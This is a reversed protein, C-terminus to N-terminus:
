ILWTTFDRNKDMDIMANYFDDQNCIVINDADSQRKGEYQRAQYSFEHRHIVICEKIADELSSKMYMETCLGSINSIQCVYDDYSMGLRRSCTDGSKSDFFLTIPYADSIGGLVRKLFRKETGSLYRSCLMRGAVDDLREPEYRNIEIIFDIDRVSPPSRKDGNFAVGAMIESGNGTLYELYSKAFLAQGLKKNRRRLHNSVEITAAFGYKDISDALRLERDERAPKM